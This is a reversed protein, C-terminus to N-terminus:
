QKTVFGLNRTKLVSQNMVKGCTILEQYLWFCVTGLLTRFIMTVNSGLIVWPINTRSLTNLDPQILNGQKADQVAPEVQALDEIM